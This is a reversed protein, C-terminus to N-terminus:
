RPNQPDISLLRTEHQENECQQEDQDEETGPEGYMEQPNGRNDQQDQPDHSEGDASALTGSTMAEVPPLARPTVARQLFDPRNTGGLFVLSGYM